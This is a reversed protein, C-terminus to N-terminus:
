KGYKELWDPSTEILALLDSQTAKVRIRWYKHGDPLMKWNEATGLLDAEGAKLLQEIEDQHLHKRPFQEM